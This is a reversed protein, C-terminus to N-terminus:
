RGRGGAELRAMWTDFRAIFEANSRTHSLLELLLETADDPNQSLLKRLRGSVSLAEPSLLDEERRTGSRYLNLAPFIRKEQLRRDLHLEMNGTGKFEEYIIDDMRSGTDILATALVTLSGGEEVQRAAGFLKKPLAIAAPDLGGSLLRGSSPVSLNNARALRTLSDVLLMVDRGCEVQRKAKELTEEALQRHRQPPDDF